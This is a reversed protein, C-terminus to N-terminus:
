RSAIKLVEYKKFIVLRHDGRLPPSWPDTFYPKVLTIRRLIMNLPLNKSLYLFQYAITMAVDKNPNLIHFEIVCLSQVHPHLRFLHM